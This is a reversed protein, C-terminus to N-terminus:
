DVAIPLTLRITTGQGPGESEADMEGGHARVLDRAIALGLGSGRSDPSRHFREFVSALEDQPIGRGTDTVLVRVNPGERQATVMVRGGSPSYRLANTLVNDLVERLRTPDVNVAPLDAPLTATVTVGATAAARSQGDIADDVIEELATPRRDLPLAGSEALSLIRLDEVIRSMHRTEELIAGLHADDREYVGDLAGELQGQIVTLPTRMEHGVDALLRRRLEEAQGLREAMTNFADILRRVDQPGRREVRVDIEGDAVRTTAEMLQGLPVAARRVSRGVVFIGVIVVVLLMPPLAGSLSVPAAPVDIGAARAIILALSGIGLSILVLLIFFTM